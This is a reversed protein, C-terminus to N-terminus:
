PSRAVVGAVFDPFLASRDAYPNPSGPLSTLYISPVSASFLKDLTANLTSSPQDYAIVAQKSRPKKSTAAPIVLSQASSEYTVIMDVLPYYQPVVNTGPNIM